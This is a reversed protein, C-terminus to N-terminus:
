FRRVITKLELPKQEPEPNRMRYDRIKERLRKEMYEMQLDFIPSDRRDEVNICGHSVTSRDRAFAEAVENLTLQGVVHALYMAMQRSLTLLSGGRKVNHLEVHSIGQAECVIEKSMRAVVRCAEASFADTRFPM